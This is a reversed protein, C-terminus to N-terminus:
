SIIYGSPMNDERMLGTLLYHVMFVDETFRRGTSSTMSKTKRSPVRMSIIKM